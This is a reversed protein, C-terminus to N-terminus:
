PEMVKLMGSSALKPKECAIREIMSLLAATLAVPRRSREDGGLQIETSPYRM